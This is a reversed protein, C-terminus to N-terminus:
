HFGLMMVVVIHILALVAFSYSFPKHVVHWLHFVQQARDLFVIRKSLSAEDRATAIAPELAPHQTHLLGCLPAAMGGARLVKRRIAAVRFFRAIDLLVMYALAAAMPLRAVTEQTPMQLLSRLDGEALLHVGEGTTLQGRLREALDEQLQQMEKRSLEAASLSRPIQSYLYRGVIGSLSVAVMIWFAIGAFGRFKFAAHFAILLPASIGLLIHNDLGHRASGMKQLWPWRKRLAYLFIGLFCGLGLFGLKLGVVGSPRLLSHKESFPRQMADLTYYDYGYVALALLLGAALLYGAVLRLQHVSVRTVERPPSSLTSANSSM